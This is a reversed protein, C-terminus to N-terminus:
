KGLRDIITPLGVIFAIFAFVVIMQILSPAPQEQAIRQQISHQEDERRNM